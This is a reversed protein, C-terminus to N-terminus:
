AMPTGGHEGMGLQSSRNRSWCLAAMTMPTSMANDSMSNAHTNLMVATDLTLLVARYSMTHSPMAHCPVVRM